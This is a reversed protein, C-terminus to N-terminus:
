VRDMTGYNILNTFAKSECMKPQALSLIKSFLLLAILAGGFGVVLM